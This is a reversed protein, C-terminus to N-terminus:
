YAGLSTRRPDLAETPDLPRSCRQRTCCGQRRSRRAPVRFSPHTSPITIPGPRLQRAGQHTDVQVAEGPSLGLHGAQPPLPRCAGRDSIAVGLTRDWTLLPSPLLPAPGEGKRHLRLFPQADRNSAILGGQCVLLLIEAGRRIVEKRRRSRDVAGRKDREFAGLGLCLPSKRGEEELLASSPFPTSSGSLLDNGGRLGKHLRGKPAPLGKLFHEDDAETGSESGPTSDKHFFAPRSLYSQSDTGQFGTATADAGALLRESPELLDCSQRHYPHPSRNLIRLQDGDHDADSSSLVPNPNPDPPRLNESMAVDQCTSAIAEVAPSSAVILQATAANSLDRCPPPNTHRQLPRCTQDTQNTIAVPILSPM